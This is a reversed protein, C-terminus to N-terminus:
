ELHLIPRGTDLEKSSSISSRTYIAKKLRYPTEFFRIRCNIKTIVFFRSTSLLSKIKKM